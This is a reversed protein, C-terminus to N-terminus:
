PSGSGTPRTLSAYGALASIFPAVASGRRTVTRAGRWAWGARGLALVRGQGSGEVDAEEDEGADRL